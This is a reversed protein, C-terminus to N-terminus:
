NYIGKIFFIKFICMIKGLLKKYFPINDLVEESFEKSNKIDELFQSKLDCIAQSNTIIVNAETNYFFSLIDMNSSGVTAWADDIIVIKSHLMAKDYFFIKIGIRLLKKIYTLAMFDALKIESYRPILIVVEVGRRRAQTLLKIFNNNPVFFATTIYVYQQAQSIAKVLERYIIHYLKFSRSQLYCFSNIRQTTDSADNQNLLYSIDDTIPGTLRIETDRWLKMRQAIGIGGIYVINSDILLIKSHTRPFCRWPMLINWFNIKNYFYFEGGKKQFEKILSSNRLSYSGYWDCILKVAVNQALKQIFLNLFKDGTEDNEFIYQEFYISKKSAACDQYMADWAENSSLYIKWNHQQNQDNKM